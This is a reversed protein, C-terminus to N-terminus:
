VDAEEARHGTHCLMSFTTIVVCAETIKGAKLPPLQDKTESTFIKISKEPLTTFILFQEKWQKVLFLLLLSYLSNM